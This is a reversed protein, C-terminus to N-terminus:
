REWRRAVEKLFEAIPITIPTPLAHCLGMFCREVTLSEAPLTIPQPHERCVWFNGAKEMPKGCEPCNSM